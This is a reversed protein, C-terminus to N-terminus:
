WLGVQVPSAGYQGSFLERRVAARDDEVLQGPLDGGRGSGGNETWGMGEQLAQVAEGMKGGSVEHHRLVKRDWDGVQLQIGAGRKSAERFVLAWAASIEDYAEDKYRNHLFSDWQPLAAVIHTVGDLFALSTTAQSEQPPLFHPVYDRL